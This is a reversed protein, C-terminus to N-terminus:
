GLGPSPPLLVLHPWMLTEAMQGRHDPKLRSHACRTTWSPRLAVPSM